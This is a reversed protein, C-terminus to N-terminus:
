VGQQFESRRLVLLPVEAVERYLSLGHGFSQHEGLLEGHDSTVIVLTNELLGTSDLKAFLRGLQSDLYAICDDYCDRAM